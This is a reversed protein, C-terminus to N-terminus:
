KEYSAITKIINNLCDPKCINKFNQQMKQAEQSNQIYFNLAKEMQKTTSVIKVANLTKLYKINFYEPVLFNDLAIFKVGCASTELISSSGTKGIVIDSLKILEHMNTAFGLNIVNKINNQKIYDDIQQKSEANRGNVVILSYDGIKDHFYKVIKLNNAFGAGGNTVLIFKGDKTNMNKLVEERNFPLFFKSNIPIGYNLLKEKPFGHKIMIDSVYQCPSIIYECKRLNQAYYPVCFDSLQYIYKVSTKGEEILEDLANGAWVLPTYIFDPKYKELLKLLEVKSTKVYSKCFFYGKSRLAIGMSLKQGFAVIHPIKKVLKYYNESSAKAMKENEAYIDAYEVEINNAKCAEKVANCISELGAGVKLGLCLVKMIGGNIIVSSKPM